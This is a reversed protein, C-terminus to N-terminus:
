KNSAPSHGKDLKVVKSLIMYDAHIIGRRTVRDEPSAEDITYGLREYCRRAPNNSTFVTLMTKGIGTSHVLKEAQSVMFSGLGRGRVKDHLHVEYIYGVRRWDNPPDDYDLKFSLFGVFLAPNVDVDSQLGGEDADKDQVIMYWMEPDAMEKRKERPHWGLSSSKYTTGSTSEILKFCIELVEETLEISRRLLFLLQFPEFEPPTFTKHFDHNQTKAQCDTQEDPFLKPKEQMSTSINQKKKATDEDPKGAKRKSTSQM